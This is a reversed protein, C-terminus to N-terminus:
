GGRRDILDERLTTDSANGRRSCTLRIYRFITLRMTKKIFLKKIHIPHRTYCFTLTNMNETIEPLVLVHQVNFLFSHHIETLFFFFDTDRNISLGFVTNLAPRSFFKNEYLSWSSSSVKAHLDSVM